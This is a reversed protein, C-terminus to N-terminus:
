EMLCNDCDADPVVRDKMAQRRFRRVAKGNWVKFFSDSFWNGVTHWSYCPVASGETYMIFFSYPTRCSTRKNFNKLVGQYEIGYMGTIQPDPLGEIHEGTMNFLFLRGGCDGHVKYKEYREREYLSIRLAKLYPMGILANFKVDTLFDGNTTVSFPIGFANIIHCFGMFNEHMMPEGKGTISISNILRRKWGLRCMFQHFETIDMDKPHSKWWRTFDNDATNPSKYACFACARNCRNVINVALYFPFPSFGRLLRYAFRKIRSNQM